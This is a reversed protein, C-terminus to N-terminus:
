SDKLVLPISPVFSVKGRVKQGQARHPWGSAAHPRKKPPHPLSLCLRAWGGKEKEKTDQEAREVGRREEKRKLRKMREM